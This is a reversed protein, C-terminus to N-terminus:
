SAGGPWVVAEAAVADDAADPGENSETGETRAHITYRDTQVWNPLHGYMTQWQERTLSLKYAFEIYTTLPYDAILLGGTPTYADDSSLRFTSPEHSGLNLRVSAVEFEM